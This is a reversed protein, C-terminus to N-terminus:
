DTIFCATALQALAMGAVALHDSRERRLSLADALGRDLRRGGLDHHSLENGTGTKSLENPRQNLAGAAPTHPLLDAAVGVLGTLDRHRESRPRHLRGSIELKRM